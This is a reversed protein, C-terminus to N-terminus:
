QLLEYVQWIDGAGLTLFVDKKSLNEKMWPALEHVTPIYSAKDKSLKNVEDVVSKANINGKRERASGYIDLVIVRDAHGLSEAFEKLLAKTRTFTHPHFAVTIEKQSFVERAASLTARIEEPHHAYDDILIADNLESKREFRRATGAFRAIGTSGEGDDGAIMFSMLWAAVANKANHEGFLQTFIEFEDDGRKVTIRQGNDQLTRDIIQYNNNKGTGYYIVERLSSNIVDRVHLDDGCAIIYGHSPVKKIFDIFTRKYTELDAFYDPHDFDISTLVVHYPEYLALKNQYEDAEMVLFDDGQVYAGSEWGIVRSGVIATIKHRTEIMAHALLATTTTKGHTGCVAVTKIKRTLRGLAEPYSFIPIGKERAAILESNEETISTSHVVLDIEGQIHSADFTTYVTVSNNKLQDVYFGDGVDSGAVTHGRQVYVQALASTGAGGIGVIYINM